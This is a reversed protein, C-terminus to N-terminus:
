VGKLNHYDKNLQKVKESNRLLSSGTAMLGIHCKLKASYNYNAKIDEYPFKFQNIFLQCKSKITSSIGLVNNMFKMRVTQDGNEIEVVENYDITKEAIVIDGVNSISKIGACI